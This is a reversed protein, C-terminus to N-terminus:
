QIMVASPRTEKDNMAKTLKWLKNDDRDLNLKEIKKKERERWSTRTAQIYAKKNQATYAKHAQQQSANTTKLMREPEPWKM